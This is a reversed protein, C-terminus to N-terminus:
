LGATLRHRQRPSTPKGPITREPWGPKFQPEPCIQRFHRRDQLNMAEQLNERTASEIAAQLLNAAQGAAQQTVRTAPVDLAAALEFLADNVLPKDQM